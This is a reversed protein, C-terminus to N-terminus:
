EETQRTIARKLLAAQEPTMSRVLALLTEFGAPGSDDALRAKRLLIAGGMLRMAVYDGKEIGAKALMETDLVICRNHHVKQIVTDTM